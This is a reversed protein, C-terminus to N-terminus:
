GEGFMNVVALCIAHTATRAEAYGKQFSTELYGNKPDFYNSMASGLNLKGCFWGDEGLPILSLQYKELLPFALAIDTSYNPVDDSVGDRVMMEDGDGTRMYDIDYTEVEEKFGQAMHVQADLERGSGLELEETM